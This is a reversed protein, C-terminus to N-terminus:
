VRMSRGTIMRPRQAAMGALAFRSYTAIRARLTMPWRALPSHIESGSSLEQRSVSQESANRGADRSPGLSRQSTVPSDGRVKRYALLQSRSLSSARTESSTSPRIRGKSGSRYLGATKFLSSAMLSSWFPRGRPPVRRENRPTFFAAFRRALLELLNAHSRCHSPCLRCHSPRWGAILLVGVPLWLYPVIRQVIRQVIRPSDLFLCTCVQLHACGDAFSSGLSLCDCGSGHPPGSASCKALAPVHKATTKRESELQETADQIQRVADDKMKLLYGHMQQQGGADMQAIQYAVSQTIEGNDLMAALEPILDALTRLRKVSSESIGTERAIEARVPEAHVPSGGGSRDVGKLEYLRKVARATESVTLQRRRLNEEILLTEHGGCHAGCLDANGFADSHM